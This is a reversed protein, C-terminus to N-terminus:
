RRGGNSGKEIRDNTSRTKVDVVFAPIAKFFFQMSISTCEGTKPDPHGDAFHKLAYYIGPCTYGLVRAAGNATGLILRPNAPQGAGDKGASYGFKNDYLTSVPAYGALVGSVEGDPSLTAEIVADRLYRELHMGNVVDHIRVDVPKTYLKGDKIIGTTKTRFAPNQDIAYTAFDLPKRDASLMIPDANAYIGVEVADDNVPDDVGDLTLLIGWSGTLMETAFSNAPGGSQFAHTCGVARYFQNDIGRRGDAGLLEDHPCAQPRPAIGLMKLHADIDIGEAIADPADVTQAYPDPGAAAPNACTNDGNAATSVKAAGANLREAYDKDSEGRRRRGEPTKAFIQEVNLSLGHPCQAQQADTLAFRIDSFVFGAHGHDFAGTAAAASETAVSVAFLAFLAFSRTKTMVTVMAEEDPAAEAPRSCWRWNFSVAM